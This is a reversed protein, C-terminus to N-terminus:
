HKEFRFRSPSVGVIKRFMRAFHSPNEFGASLGADSVSRKGESLVQKAREIRRRLVFQHPALGTSRKFLEAFYNESMGAVGALQQLSVDNPLNGEIFETVHKLRYGPLGGRYSAAPFRRVAYRGVLYVALASALSEGYLRGAPSGDDLDTTMAVLLSFIHRDILDWHEALEVEDVHVGENLGSLLRTPHVAVAIRHTDGSWRIADITGRPLLFTTGPTSNFRLTRGRTVVEYEVSGTLIVHLFNEVHEHRPIVCAPLSYAELALGTWGARASSQTPRAGLFREVRGERIVELGPIIICEAPSRGLPMRPASGAADVPRGPM